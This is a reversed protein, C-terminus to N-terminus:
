SLEGFYFIENQPDIAFRIRELCGQMGLICPFEGWELYQDDPIFATAEIELGAGTDAIFTLPVRYVTGALRSGRLLIHERFLMGDPPLSLTLAIEPPCILYIGGTDIFASAQFTDIRVDVTIRPTQEHETAPRYLYKISGTAFSKGDASRLLIM